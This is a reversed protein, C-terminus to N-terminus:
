PKLPKDTRATDFGEMEQDGKGPKNPGNLAAANSNQTAALDYYLRNARIFSCISIVCFIAMLAGVIGVAAELHPMRGGRGEIIHLDHDDIPLVERFNTKIGGRAMQANFQDLHKQKLPYIKRVVNWYVITACPPTTVSGKYVWRSETDAMMMIKGYSVLNVTPDSSTQTWKLQDFFDDIIKVEEETAEATHDNVSFMIGMAAYQVKNKAGGVPVHVTHMELDHRKGDVTHESGTHFHFQVGSFREPGQLYKAAFGSSFMQLDEGPNVITTKSTHGDWHVVANTQDTYLKNFNDDRAKYIKDDPVSSPLDIPSQNRAGCENNAIGTLSGWDKGDQKYDWPSSHDDVAGSVYGLFIAVVLGLKYM